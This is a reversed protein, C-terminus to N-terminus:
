SFGYSKRSKKVKRRNVASRSPRVKEAGKGKNGLGRSKRAASTLGRYVRGKVKAVGSLNKDAAVERSERDVLIVEFWYRLGDQALYYSNLVEMNPYKDAARTEAVAQYSKDLIKLQRAHKSRRGGKIDPRRRGGRLVRQRVVVVGSKPKYGLSRARDIRTPRSVRVTSGEKRWEILREKNIQRFEDSKSKWVGRVSQYFGM